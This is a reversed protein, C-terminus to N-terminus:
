IKGREDGPHPDTTPCFNQSWRVLAMPCHKRRRQASKKMKWANAHASKVFFSNYKASRLLTELRHLQAMARLAVTQRNRAADIVQTHLMRVNRCTVAMVGAIRRWAARSIGASQHHCVESRIVVVERQCM